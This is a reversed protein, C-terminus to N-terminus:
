AAARAEYQKLREELDAVRKALADPNVADAGDLLERLIYTLPPLGMRDDISKCPVVVSLVENAGHKHVTATWTGERAVKNSTFRNLLQIEEPLLTEDNLKVGVFYTSRRLTTKAPLQQGQDDFKGVPNFVSREPYFPNERRLAQQMAKANAMGTTALITQLQEPTMGATTPVVGARELLSKLSDAPLQELAKVLDGVAIPEKTM